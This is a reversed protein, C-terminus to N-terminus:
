ITNNLVFKDIADAVGDGYKLPSIYDAIEKLRDDANQVAVKFGCHKLFELDNESDGIGMVNKSSIGQWKLLKELSSGKNIKPDTLHLAFGSDYVIVNFEKVANSLEDKRVNDKYYCKEALRFVNDASSMIHPIQNIIEHHAKEVQTKDGIILIEGNNKDEKFIGGGNEFVIGGSSGILVATAYAFDAVNGTVIITPIGNDELKRLAKIASICIRRKNDTITGDIDVAVADIKVM